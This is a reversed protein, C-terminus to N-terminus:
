EAELRAVIVDLIGAINRVVDDNTFRMVRFGQAELFMQRRADYEREAETSHTAGDVEIVLRRSLCVFDVIYPDIPAQQRFKWGRSRLARLRWWLRAEAGTKNKRLRRAHENAM